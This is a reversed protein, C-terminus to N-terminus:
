VMPRRPPPRMAPPSISCAMPGFQLHAGNHGGSRWTLLIEETEPLLKPPDTESIRFRSLKTGDDLDNGITYTLFVTRNESARPHFALGYANTFGERGTKLDAFLDAGSGDGSEPFSWIKGGREVIFFRGGTRRTRAGPRGRAESLGGGPCVTQGTRAFGPDAFEDLPRPRTRRRHRDIGGPAPRNRDPLGPCTSEHRFDERKRSSSFCKAM